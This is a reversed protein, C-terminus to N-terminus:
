DRDLGHNLQKKLPSGFLGTTTNPAPTHTHTHTHPYQVKKYVVGNEGELWLMFLKLATGHASYMLYLGPCVGTYPDLTCQVTNVNYLTCQVTFM